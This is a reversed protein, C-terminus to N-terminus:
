KFINHGINRKNNIVSTHGRHLHEVRCTNLFNPEMNSKFKEKVFPALPTKCVSYWSLTQFLVWINYSTMTSKPGRSWLNSRFLCYTNLVM